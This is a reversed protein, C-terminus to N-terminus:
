FQWSVKLYQRDRTKTDTRSRTLQERKRMLGVERVRLRLLPGACIAEGPIAFGSGASMIQIFPPTTRWPDSTSDVIDLDLISLGPVKMKHRYETNSESAREGVRAGQQIYFQIVQPVIPAPTTRALLADFDFGTFWKHVKIDEAGGKLCGYRKTLDAALLKKVLSKANKDMFRPFAM